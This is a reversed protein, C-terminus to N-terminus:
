NANKRAEISAVNKVMEETISKFSPQKVIARFVGDADAEIKVEVKVAESSMRDKAYKRLEGIAYLMATNDKASSFATNVGEGKAMQTLTKLTGEVDNAGITGSNIQSVLKAAREDFDTNIAIDKKDVGGVIRSIQDSLGQGSALGQSIADKGVANASAIASKALDNLSNAAKTAAEAQKDAIRADFLKEISPLISTLKQETQNVSTRKTAVAAIANPNYEANNYDAIDKLIDDRQKKLINLNEEQKKKFFGLNFFSDSQEEAKAIQRNVNALALKDINRRVSDVVFGVAKFATAMVNAAAVIADAMPKAVKEIGGMDVVLEAITNALETLAPAAQATIQDFVGNTIKGLLEFSEGMEDVAAVQETSLVLGLREYAATAEDINSKIFGGLEKGGRGFIEQSLTARVTANDVEKLAAAIQRFQQDISLKSLSEASLGLKNFAEVQSKTGELAKGINRQMVAFSNQLAEASVGAKGAAFSLSQLKEVAIGLKEAEDNLKGIRDTAEAFNKTVLYLSAAFALGALAAGAKAFSATASNGFSRAQATASAVSSNFKSSDARIEVILESTDSAM